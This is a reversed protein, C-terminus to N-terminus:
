VKAGKRGRAHKEPSILLGDDIVKFVLNTDTNFGVQQLIAKPIRVGFSNGIRIVHTM